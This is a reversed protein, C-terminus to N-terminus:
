FFTRSATNLFVDLELEALYIDQRLDINEAAAPHLAGLFGAEQNEVFLRGEAQTCYRFNRRKGATTLWGLNDLLTELIGKLYYFDIAVPPVQWDNQPAKGSLALAVMM